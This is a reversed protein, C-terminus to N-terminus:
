HGHGNKAGKWKTLVEKGTPTIQWVANGGTDFGKEKKAVLGMLHMIRMRNSISATKIAKQQEPTLKARINQVTEGLPYLGAFMSGEDPLLGLFIYDLPDVLEYLGERIKTELNKYVVPKRKKEAMDREETPGDCHSSQTLWSFM